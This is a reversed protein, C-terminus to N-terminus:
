SEFMRRRFARRRQYEEATISENPRNPDIYIRGMCIYTDVNKSDEEDQKAQALFVIFRTPLQLDDKQLDMVNELSELSVKIKNLVPISENAYKQSPLIMNEFMFNKATLFQDKNKIEFSSTFEVIANMKSFFLDRLESQLLSSFLIEGEFVKNMSSAFGKALFYEDKSKLLYLSM